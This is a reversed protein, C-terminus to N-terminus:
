SVERLQSLRALARGIDAIADYAVGYATRSRDIDGADYATTLEEWAREHTEMAETIVAETDAETDLVTQRKRRGPLRDSFAHRIVNDTTVAKDEDARAEDIATDLEDEDLTGLKRMNARTGYRMGDLPASNNGGSAVIPSPGRTPKAELDLVGLAAEARVKVEGAANAAERGGDRMRNYHAVAAARSRWEQLTDVDGTAQALAIQRKAEDIAGLARAESAPVIDKSAMM